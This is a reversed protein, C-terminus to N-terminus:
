YSLSIKRALAGVTISCANGGFQRLWHVILISTRQLQHMLILKVNELKALGLGNGM